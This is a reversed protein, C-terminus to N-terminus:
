AAPPRTRGPASRWRPATPGGSPPRHGRAPAASGQGTGPVPPTGPEPQRGPGPSIGGLAYRVLQQGDESTFVSLETFGAREAVRRSGLNDPAMHAELRTIGLSAAYRCLLTLARASYGSRRHAAGTWYSVHGSGDAQIRLECGGLLSGTGADRVAFARTPGASRWEETWHDIAARVTAETSRRPWFGFRRASEEDEGALHALWDGPRFGDMTIIGDSLEPVPAPEAAFSETPQDPDTM